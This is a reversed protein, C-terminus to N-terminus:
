ENRSTSVPLQKTISRMAAFWSPAYTESDFAFNGDSDSIWEFSVNLETANGTDV